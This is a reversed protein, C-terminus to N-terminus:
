NFFDDFEHYATPGDRALERLSDGDPGVHHEVWTAMDRELEDIIAQHEESIDNQEWPDENLNYLQYRSLEEKYMGPHYTRILKWKSTRIARQVTHLGHELVIYDRWSDNQQEIIPLLSKGQWKEPPDIGAFELITPAIDVNTILQDRCGPDFSCNKPPKIILPIQQTGDFTSWHHRYVGHEGFEEGHDGTLIILSEDYSGIAQLRDIIRGIHADAYRIEADYNAHIEALDSRNEIGVETAGRLVSKKQQQKIQEDTPYPPLLSEDRFQEIEEESRNYPEHPDWFQTYLFFDTRCNADLFDIALDAVHEARPTFLSEDDGIPERPQIFQDWLHYFWKAPHRPFSSIATTTIREHFFM